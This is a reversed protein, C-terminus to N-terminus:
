DYGSMVHLYIIIHNFVHHLKYLVPCVYLKKNRKLCITFLEGSDMELHLNYFVTFIVMESSLMLIVSKLYSLIMPSIINSFTFFVFKLPIVPWTWNSSCPPLTELVLRSLHILLQSKTKEGGPM